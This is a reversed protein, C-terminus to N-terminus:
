KQKPQTSADAIFDRKLSKNGEIKQALEVLSIGTKM